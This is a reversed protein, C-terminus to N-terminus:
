FSVADANLGNVLDFGEQGPGLTTLISFSGASTARGFDVDRADGAVTFQVTLRIPDAVAPQPLCTLLAAVFGFRSITQGVKRMQGGPVTISPARGPAPPLQCAMRGCDPHVCGHSRRAGCDVRISIERSRRGVRGAM